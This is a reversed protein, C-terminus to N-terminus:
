RSVWRPWGEEQTCRHNARARLPQGCLCVRAPSASGSRRARAGLLHPNRHGARALPLRPRVQRRARPLPLATAAPMLLPPPAAVAPVRLSGSGCILRPRPSSAPGLGGACALLHLQPPWRPHKSSSGHPSNCAHPPPGYDGARKHPAAAPSSCLAALPTSCSTPLFFIISNFPAQADTVYLSPYLLTNQDM